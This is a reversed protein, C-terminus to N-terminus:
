GAAAPAFPAAPVRPPRGLVLDAVLEGTAPALLIGNRFHGVAAVVGPAVEGITPAPVPSWPRFGAWADIRAGLGPIAGRAWRELRDLDEAVTAAAFGADEMTTGAVVRGDARPVAVGENVPEMLITGLRGRDFLLMQGRRPAVPLDLGAEALHAAAWAGTAVVVVDARARLEELPPAPRAEVTIGGLLAGAARPPRVLGVGPFRMAPEASGDARTWLVEEVPLGRAERWDRWAPDGGLVTVGPRRLEVQPARAALDDWLELSRAALAHVHDPLREPHSPSLIGAAAWSGAARGAGPDLVRVRAGGDALHRACAAGVVGAGLVVVRPGTGPAM